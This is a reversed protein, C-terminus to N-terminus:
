FGGPRQRMRANDRKSTNTNVNGPRGAQRRMGGPYGSIIPNSSRTAKLDYGIAAAEERTLSTGSHLSASSSSGHKTRLERPNGDSRFQPHVPAPLGVTGQPNEFPM